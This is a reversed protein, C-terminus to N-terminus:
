KLKTYDLVDSTEDVQTKDTNNDNWMSLAYEWNTKYRKNKKCEDKLFSVLSEKQEPTLVDENGDHYFYEIKSLCVCTHIRKGNTDDDWIHMHPVEGDGGNVFVKFRSSEPEGNSKLVNFYGVLAMEFLMDNEETASSLKENLIDYEGSENEKEDYVYDEDLSFLDVTDYLPEYDIYAKDLESLPINDFDFIDLEKLEKDEVFKDIKKLRRSLIQPRGYLDYNWKPDAFKDNFMMSWYIISFGNRKYLDSFFGDFHNLVDGEKKIALQILSDDIDGITNENNHLLIIECHKEGEIDTPKLAFGIKYGKLKFTKIGLNVLEDKTYKTLFDMRKSHSVSELFSDYEDTEWASDDNMLLKVKESLEVDIKKGLLLEDCLISNYACEKYLNRMWQANYILEELLMFREM